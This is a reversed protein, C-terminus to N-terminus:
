NSGEQENKLEKISKKFWKCIARELMRSGTGSKYNNKYFSYEEELWSILMEREVKEM